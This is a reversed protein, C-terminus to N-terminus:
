SLPQVDGLFGARGLPPRGNLSWLLAPGQRVGQAPQVGLRGAMAVLMPRGLSVEMKLM